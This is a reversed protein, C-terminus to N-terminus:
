QQKKEVASEDDVLLEEIDDNRNGGKMRIEELFNMARPKGVSQKVGEGSQKQSKSEKKKIFVNWQVM